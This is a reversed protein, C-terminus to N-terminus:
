MLWSRRYNQGQLQRIKKTRNIILATELDVEIEDGMEVAKLIGPCELLNIGNIMSQDILYTSFSEAVICNIGLVKMGIFFSAHIKGNGFNRGGVLIDNKQVIGPIKPDYAALFKAALQAPPLADMGLYWGTATDLNVHEGLVTIAKGTFKM